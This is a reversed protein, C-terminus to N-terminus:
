TNIKINKGVNGKMWLPGLQLQFPHYHLLHLLQQLYLELLLQVLFMHYQPLDKQMSKSLYHHCAMNNPNMQSHQILHQYLLNKKM